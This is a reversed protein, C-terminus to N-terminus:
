YNQKFLTITWLNPTDTYSPETMVSYKFPNTIGPPDLDCPRVSEARMKPQLGM